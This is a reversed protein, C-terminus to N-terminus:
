KITCKNQEQNLKQSHTEKCGHQNLIFPDKSIKIVKISTKAYELAKEETDFIADVKTNFSGDIVEYAVYLKITPKQLFQKRMHKRMTSYGRSIQKQKITNFDGM